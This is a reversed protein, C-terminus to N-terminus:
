YLETNLYASIVRRRSSLIYIGLYCMVVYLYNVYSYYHEKFFSIRIDIFAFIVM